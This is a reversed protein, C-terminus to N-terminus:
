IKSSRSHYWMENVLYHAHDLVREVTEDDYYPNYYKMTKGGYM